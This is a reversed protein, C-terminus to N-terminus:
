VVHPASAHGSGVIEPCSAGDASGRYVAAGCGYVAAGCGYVAASCGYVAAGCGFVAACTTAPVLPPTKSQPERRRVREEGGLFASDQM